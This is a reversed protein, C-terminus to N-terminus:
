YRIRENPSPLHFLNIVKPWLDLWQLQLLLKLAKIQSENDDIINWQKDTTKADLLKDIKLLIRQVWLNKEKLIASALEQKFNSSSLEQLWKTTLEKDYQGETLIEIWNTM